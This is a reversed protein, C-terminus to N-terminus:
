QEGKEIARAKEYVARFHNNRPLRPLTIRGHALLKLAIPLDDLLTGLALGTVAALSADHIRGSLWLNGVFNRYFTNVDRLGPRVGERQALICAANMVKAPELQQPCRASCTECGMCWWITRCNLVEDKLGLRVSHMVQAPKLDMRDALPCGASCKSCQFCLYVNQGSIAEIQQQFTMSIEVLRENDM